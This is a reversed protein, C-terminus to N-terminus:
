SKIKIDQGSEEEMKTKVALKWDTGLKIVLEDFKPIEHISLDEDFLVLRNNEVTHGAVEKSRFFWQGIRKYKIKYKM